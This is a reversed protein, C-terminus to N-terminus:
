RREARAARIKWGIAKTPQGPRAHDVTDKVGVAGATFCGSPELGRKSSAPQRNRQGLTFVQVVEAASWAPTSQKKPQYGVCPLRTRRVNSPLGRACVCLLRSLGAGHQVQGRQVGDAVLQLRGVPLM